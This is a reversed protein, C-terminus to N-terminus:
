RAHRELLRVCETRGHLREPNGSVAAMPWWRKAVSACVRRSSRIFGAENVEYVSVWRYSGQPEEGREIAADIERQAELYADIAADM